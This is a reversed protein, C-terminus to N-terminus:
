CQCQKWAIEAGCYKSCTCHMVHKSFVHWSSVWVSLLKLLLVIHLFMAAVGCLEFPDRVTKEFDEQPNRRVVGFVVVVRTWLLLDLYALSSWLDASSCWSRYNKLRKFAGRPAVKKYLVDFVTYKICRSAGSPELLSGLFSSLIVGQVRPLSLALNLCSIYCFCM